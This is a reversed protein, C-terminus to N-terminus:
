QVDPPQPLEYDVLGYGPISGGSRHGVERFGFSGYMSRAPTFFPHDGTTVKITRLGQTRMRRVAEGLQKTGHGQRRCGPRICNHGVFGLGRDRVPEWSGFGIPTQGLCTVFICAGVTNPHSFAERDYEAWRPTESAAFEPASDVLGQYSQELLWLITGPRHSSLSTFSLEGELPMDM